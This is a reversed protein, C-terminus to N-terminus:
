SLFSSPPLSADYGAVGGFCQGRHLEAAGGMRVGCLSFTGASALAFRVKNLVKQCLVSKSFFIERASTKSIDM